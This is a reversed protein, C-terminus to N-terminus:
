ANRPGAAAPAVLREDRHEYVTTLPDHRGLAAWAIVGGAVAALGALLLSFRIGAVYAAAFGVADAPNVASATDAFASTGLVALLGQLQATRDAAAAGTIGAAALDGTLTAVAVQGVIATSVLIGARMGLLLSAENLAAATAPLGRPVSAFILATRVTTAIVFGAGIAAFPVIFGIYGTDPTVLWATALLGTGLAIVGGGILTRPRMRALLWGAIPGALVLAAFLPAIAIMGFLPGYGLVISFYQPLQVMPVNQAIAIVLGVFLAVTVPRREVRVAESHEERRRREVVVYGLVLAIGLVIMAARIPNLGGGLWLVGTAISVVGSAWLVTGVVYPREARKPRPLDFARGWALWLALGAAAIEAVFGPAYFGPRLTVLVPMLAQGGSYAAYALGIATARSIGTYAVAVSALAVPFVVAAAANAVIRSGAFLPTGPLLLSVISAVLLVVLGGRILPRARALDGVAGAVLLVIAGILGNVLITAELGPQARVAAQVTSLQPSWIRPDIGSAFLAAAGALLTSAATRDEFVDGFVARLSPQSPRPM